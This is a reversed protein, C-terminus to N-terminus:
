FVDFFFPVKKIKKLCLKNEFPFICFLVEKNIITIKYLQKLMKEKSIFEAKYM